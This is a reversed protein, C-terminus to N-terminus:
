DTSFKIPQQESALTFSPTGKRRVLMPLLKRMEIELDKPIKGQTLMARFEKLRPKVKSTVNAKQTWPKPKQPKRIRRVIENRELVAKIM